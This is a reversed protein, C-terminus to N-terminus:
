IVPTECRLPVLNLEPWQTVLRYDGLADQPARHVRRKQTVSIALNQLAFTKSNECVDFLQGDRILTRSKKRAPAKDGSAPVM